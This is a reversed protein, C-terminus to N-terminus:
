CTACSEVFHLVDKYFGKWWYREKIKTFTAWVGRHGAWLSEHFEKVINQQLEKGCVVRQPAGRRQKPHKWLHGDKLFYGYAKKRIRKYEQDSWEDSRRLTSLYRGILLWEGDYDNELFMAFVQGIATVNARKQSSKYFTLGIDEDSSIMEEKNNFRARLLMDVVM